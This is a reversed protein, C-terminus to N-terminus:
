SPPPTVQAVKPYKIVQDFNLLKSFHERIGLYLAITSEDTFNWNIIKAYLHYIIM